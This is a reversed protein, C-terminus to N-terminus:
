TPSCGGVLKHVLTKSQRGQSSTARSTGTLLCTPATRKCALARLVPFLFRCNSCKSKVDFTTLATLDVTSKNHWDLAMFCQLCTLVWSNASAYWGPYFIGTKKALWCTDQQSAPLILQSYSACKWVLVIWGKMIVFRQQWKKILEENM